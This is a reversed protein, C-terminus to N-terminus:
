YDDIVANSEKTQAISPKSFTLMFYTEWRARIIDSVTGRGKNSRGKEVKERSKNRKGERRRKGYKAATCHWSVWDRSYNPLLILRWHNSQPIGFWITLLVSQKKLHHISQATLHGEKYCTWSDPM